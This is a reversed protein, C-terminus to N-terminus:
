GHVDQRVPIHVQGIEIELRDVRLHFSGPAEDLSGSRSETTSVLVVKWQTPKRYYEDENM